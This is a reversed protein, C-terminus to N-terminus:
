NKSLVLRQYALSIFATWILGSFLFILNGAANIAVMEYRTMQEFGEVLFPFAFLPLMPWCSLLGGCFLYWFRSRTAKWSDAFSRESSDIATAPLALSFRVPFYSAFPLFLIAAVVFAMDLLGESENFFISMVSAVIVFLVIYIVFFWLGLLQSRWFYANLRAASHVPETTKSTQGNLLLKRHLFISLIVGVLVPGLYMVFHYLVDQWSAGADQMQSRPYYIWDLLACAVITGAIWSWAFRIFESIDKLLVSHAELVTAWISLEKSGTRM